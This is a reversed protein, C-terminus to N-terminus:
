IERSHTGDVLHDQKPFEIYFYLLFECIVKYSDWCGLVKNSVCSLRSGNVRQGIFLDM